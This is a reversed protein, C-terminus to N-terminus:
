SVSNSFSLLPSFCITSVSFNMRQCIFEHKSKKKRKLEKPYLCSSGLDRVTCKTFVSFSHIEVYKKM